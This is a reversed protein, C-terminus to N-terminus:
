QCAAPWVGPLTRAGSLVTGSATGVREHADSRPFSLCLPRLACELCFSYAVHGLHLRKVHFVDKVSAPHTAYARTFRSMLPCSM